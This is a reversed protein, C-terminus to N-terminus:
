QIEQCNKNNKEKICEDFRDCTYHNIHKGLGNKIMEETLFRSGCGIWKKSPETCNDDCCGICIVNINRSKKPSSKIKKLINKLM